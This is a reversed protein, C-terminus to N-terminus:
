WPEGPEPLPECRFADCCPDQCQAFWMAVPVGDAYRMGSRWGPQWHSVRYDRDIDPEHEGAIAPLATRTEPDVILIM